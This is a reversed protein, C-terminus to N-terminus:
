AGLEIGLRAVQFEPCEAFEEGPAKKQEFKVIIYCCV